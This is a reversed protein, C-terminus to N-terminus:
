WRQEGSTEGKSDVLVTHCVSAAAVTIRVKHIVATVLAPQLIPANYCPLVGYCADPSVTSLNKTGGHGLQGASGLGFTFM